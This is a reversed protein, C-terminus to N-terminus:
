TYGVRRWTPTRVALRCSCKRANRCGYSLRCRWDTGSHMQQRDHAAPIHRKTCATNMDCCLSSYITLSGKNATLSAHMIIYLSVTAACYRTICRSPEFHLELMASSCGILLIPTSALVVLVPLYPGAIALPIALLLCYLGRHFGVFLRCHGPLEQIWWGLDACRRPIVGSHRCTNECLCSVSLSSARAAPHPTDACCCVGLSM